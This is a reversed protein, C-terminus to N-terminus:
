RDTTKAVRTYVWVAEPIERRWIDRLEPEGSFQWSDGTKIQKDEVQMKKKGSANDFWM